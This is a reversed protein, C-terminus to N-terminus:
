LLLFEYNTLLTQAMAAFNHLCGPGLLLDSGESLM